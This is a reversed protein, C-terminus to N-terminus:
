RSASSSSTAVRAGLRHAPAAATHTRPHAGRRVRGTMRSPTAPFRCRTSTVGPPCPQIAGRGRCPGSGRDVRAHRRRRDTGAAIVAVRDALHQAEDMYHTTLLVTKGLRCLARRRDDVRTAPRVSRLRHHARRPLHPRSRGRPRTGSRAPAAPRRVADEGARRGEGVPGVLDLLEEVPRPHPYCRGTHLLYEAATLYPISGRRNCSSASASVCRMARGHQPDAGLVRVRGATRDRFGELIEVTTTKGAGNPGLLAFVEGERM